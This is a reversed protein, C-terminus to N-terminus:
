RGKWYGSEEGGEDDSFWWWMLGRVVVAAADHGCRCGLRIDERDGYIRKM